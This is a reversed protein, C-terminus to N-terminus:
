EKAKPEEKKEEGGAAEKNIKGLELCGFNIKIEHNCPPADNATVEEGNDAKNFIEAYKTAYDDILQRNKEYAAKQKDDQAKYVDHYWDAWKTQNETGFQVEFVKGSERDQLITHHRRYGMQKPNEIYDKDVLVDFNDKISEANQQATKVDGTDVRYASLDQLNQVNYEPDSHRRTFVKDTASDVDKVRGYVNADPFAKKLVDLTVGFSEAHREILPEIEKKIGEWDHEAEPSDTDAQEKVEEGDEDVEDLGDEVAQEEEKSEEVKGAKQAIGFDEAFQNSDKLLEEIDMDVEIVKMKVDKGSALELGVHAAWRHHGDLVYGDKSVFIPATIGEHNPDAKLAETMGAVKAGVLEKQTAKLNEAPVEKETMKVGNDKLHQKFLEEGDAEDDGQEKAVKEAESGAVPKGKLQPMEARPVDKNDECFLNTNPITIECLNFDPAKEGKERAENAVRALETLKMSVEAETKPDDSVVGKGKPEAEKVTSKEKKKPEDEGTKKYRYAMGRKTQVKEKRLKSKDLAKLILNPYSKEIENETGVHTLILKPLTKDSM